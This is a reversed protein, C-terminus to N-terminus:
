AEPHCFKYGHRPFYDRSSVLVPCFSTLTIRYIFWVLFRIAFFFFLKEQATISESLKDIRLLTRPTQLVLTSQICFISLEVNKRTQLHM